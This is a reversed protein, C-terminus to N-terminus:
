EKEPGSLGLGPALRSLALDALPTDVALRDGLEAALALDKEGLQRVHDLIGFWHDDTAVPGATGRCMIAGPGGTIADTHRVVKGLAVLDVGAAEALQAAETAATFAVFHLLNRALKAATGTGVPGFHVVLEGMRELVERSAEYADVDGGVLIALRGQEAGVAGGSVPADLVQAGHATALEAVERAADPHITSHVAIVCGPRVGALVGDAGTLVDRVQTDDRVMVSIHGAHEAVERPSGAVKAGAQELAEAASADVDHVLLGAPWGALRAAMPRGIQGLGIFGVAVTSSDIPTTM